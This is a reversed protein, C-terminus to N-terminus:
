ALKTFAAHATLPDVVQMTLECLARVYRADALTPAELKKWPRFTLRKWKRTNIILADTSFMVPDPVVELTFGLDSLFSTVMRGARREDLTVRVKDAGFTAIKQAQAPNCLFVYNDSPDGGDDLIAKCRSNLAAETLETTTYDVNGNAATIFHFAGKMNRIFNPSGEGGTSGTSDLAGYIFANSLQNKMELMRDEWQIALQDNGLNMAREEQSGTVMLYMDFIATYNEAIAYSKWLNVDPSSGEQRPVYLIEYQDQLAHSGYGTGSNRNAYDRKVTLTNTSKDIVQMIENVAPTGIPTAKTKNRIISGIPCLSADTVVLTDGSTSTDVTTSGSNAETMVFSNAQRYEWEYRTSDIKGGDPLRDLLRSKFMMMDWLTSDLIQKETRSTIDWTAYMGTPAGPITNAM